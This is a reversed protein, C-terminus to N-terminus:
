QLFVVKDMPHSSFINEYKSYNFVSNPNNSAELIDKGIEQLVSSFDKMFESSAIEVLKSAYTQVTKTIGNIIENMGASLEGLRRALINISSENQKEDEAM